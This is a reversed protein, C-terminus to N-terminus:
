LVVENAFIYVLVYLGNKVLAKVKERVILFIDNAIRGLTTRM